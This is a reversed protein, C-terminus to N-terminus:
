TQVNRARGLVNAVARTDLPGCLPTSRSRRGHADSVRRASRVHRGRTESSRRDLGTPRDPAPELGFGSSWARCYVAENVDCLVSDQDALPMAICHPRAARGTPFAHIARVSIAETRCPLFSELSPLSHQGATIGIRVNELRNISTQGDHLSLM